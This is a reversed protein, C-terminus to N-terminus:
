SVTPGCYLKVVLVPVDCVGAEDLCVVCVKTPPSKVIGLVWIVKVFFCCSGSALCERGFLKNCSSEMVNRSKSSSM